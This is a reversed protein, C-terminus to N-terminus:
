LKFGYNTKEENLFMIKLYFIMMDNNTLLILEYKM